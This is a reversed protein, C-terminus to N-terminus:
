FLGSIMIGFYDFNDFSVKTNELLKGEIVNLKKTLQQISLNISEVASTLDAKVKNVM